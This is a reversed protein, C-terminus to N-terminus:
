ADYGAGRALFFTVLLIGLGTGVFLGLAFAAVSTMLLEM